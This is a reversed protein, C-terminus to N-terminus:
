ALTQISRAVSQPGPQQAIYAALGPTLLRVALTTGASRVKTPILTPPPSLEPSRAVYSRVADARHTPQQRLLRLDVVDRRVAPIRVQEPVLPVQLQEALSAVAGLRCTAFLHGPCPRSPSLRGESTEGEASGPRRIKSASTCICWYWNIKSLRSGGEDGDPSLRGPRPSPLIVM